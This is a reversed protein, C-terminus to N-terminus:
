LEGEPIPEYADPHVQFPELGREVRVPNAAEICDRCIPVRVGDVRVSPVRHPNYSFVRGCGGCASWVAVLGM